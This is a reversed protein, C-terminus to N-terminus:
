DDVFGSPAGPAAAGRYALVSAVCAIALGIALALFVGAGGAPRPRAPGALFGDVDFWARRASRRGM